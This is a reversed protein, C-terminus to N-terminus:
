QMVGNVFKELDQELDKAEAQLSSIDAHLEVIQRLIESADDPDAPAFGVYRGPSLSFDNAAIEERTVAKCLGAVDGYLGDSFRHLLWHGQAVFYSVRKFAEVGMDRVTPKERKKPDRPLLAKKADRTLDSDFAAWQRARLSKEALELLKLWGKHRAELAALAAKLDPNAEDLKDHLAKRQAFSANDPLAAIAEQLPKTDELAKTLAADWSACPLRM